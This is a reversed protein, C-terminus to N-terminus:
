GAREGSLTPAALANECWRSLLEDSAIYWGPPLPMLRRREEGSDFILAGLTLAPNPVGRVRDSALEEAVARVEWERGFDDRFVRLLPDRAPM